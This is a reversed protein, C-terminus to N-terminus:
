GHHRRRKFISFPDLSKARRMVAKAMKSVMGRMDNHHLKHSADHIENDFIMNHVPHFQFPHRQPKSTAKTQQCPERYDM